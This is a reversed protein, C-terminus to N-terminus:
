KRLIKEEILHLCYPDGHTRGTTSISASLCGGRCTSGYKCQTCDDNLDTRRFNRTYQFAEEDNWIDSILMERINGEIFQDPLSLCGKIGGDSQIGLVNMGAHCGRWAGIMINPLVSSHYGMCHAGTIPLETISYKRRSSAIFMAVAYFEEPTATLTKPFRGLPNGMQIQWAIGRHLLFDRMPQLDHLNMKHITTVVTTPLNADKLLQIAHICREFSGPTGRISDHTKPTAGDISIAIAYPELTRLLNIIKEDIFYGNSMITLNMGRDRIHRAITYWDNRIFPEGGMLTIQKCNLDALQNSVNIWDDASLENERQYGASSGCHICHMNCRLTLEFLTDSLKNKRRFM